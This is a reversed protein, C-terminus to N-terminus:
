GTSGDPPAAAGAPGAVVGAARLSAVEAPTLGLGTLIEDSQEGVGPPPRPPLPRVGDWRIPLAVTQLDPHTASPTPVLMESAKTQAHAVVEDLRQLPACTVGAVRLRELLPATRYRRTVGELEPLLVDRHRVRGPNDAFRPDAVLDPRDLAACLRRFLTDTPAAIMLHGDATAFTSYPVIIAAGSGQPGPVQGTALYGLFQYPIWAIATDFLATTIECGRGSRDRERLAALIALAAWM